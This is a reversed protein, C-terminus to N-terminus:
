HLAIPHMNKQQLAAPHLFKMCLLRCVFRNNVKNFLLGAYFNLTFCYTVSKIRITRYFFVLERYFFIYLFNFKLFPFSQYHFLSSMDFPFPDCPFPTYM